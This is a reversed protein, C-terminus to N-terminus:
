GHKSIGHTFDNGNLILLHTYNLGILRRMIGKLYFGPPQRAPVAIFNKSLGVVWTGIAGFEYRELFCCRMVGIDHMFIEAPNEM